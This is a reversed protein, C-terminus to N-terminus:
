TSVRVAAGNAIPVRHALRVTTIAPALRAVAARRAQAAARDPTAAASRRYGLGLIAAVLDAPQDTAMERAALATAGVAGPSRQVLPVVRPPVSQILRAKARHM